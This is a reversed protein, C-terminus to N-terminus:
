LNGKYLKALEVKLDALFRFAKEENYNEDVVCGFYVISFFSVIKFGGQLPYTEKEPRSSEPMTDQEEIIEKCERKFSKNIEKTVTAEFVIMDNDRAIYCYHISM